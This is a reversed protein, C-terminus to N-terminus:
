TCRRGDTLVEAGATRTVTKGIRFRASWIDSGASIEGREAHGRVIAIPLGALDAATLDARGILLPDQSVIAADCLAALAPAAADLRDRQAGDHAVLYPSVPTAGPVAVLLWAALAEGVACASRHAAELEDPRPLPWAIYVLLPLGLEHRARPTLRLRYRKDLVDILGREKGARVWRYANSRNAGIRDRVELQTPPRRLEITLAAIALVVSRVHAERAARVAARASELSRM